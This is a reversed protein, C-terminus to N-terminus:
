IYRGVKNKYEIYADGFKKLMFKEEELIQLHMTIIMIFTMFWVAINGFALSAGIYTLDFGLFAPNRSIGYIGNTVIQTKEDDPIGARWNDKMTVMATIFICVGIGFVVLGATRIIVNEIMSIDFIISVAIVIVIITSAFKLFREIFVTRKEKERQRIPRYNHREKKSKINKCLIGYLFYNVGINRYNTDNKNLRSV